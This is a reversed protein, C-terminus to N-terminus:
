PPAPDSMGTAGLCVEVAQLAKAAAERANGLERLADGRVDAASRSPFASPPLPDLLEQISDMGNSLRQRANKVQESERFPAAGFFFERQERVTLAPADRQRKPRAPAIGGVAHAAAMGSPPTTPMMM